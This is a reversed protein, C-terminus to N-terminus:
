PPDSTSRSITPPLDRIDIPLGCEDIDVPEGEEDVRHLTLWGTGPDTTLGLGEDHLKALFAMYWHYLAALIGIAGLPPCFLGVVCCILIIGAKRM